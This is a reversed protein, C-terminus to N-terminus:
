MTGYGYYKMLVRSKFIVGKASAGGGEEECGGGNVCAYHAALVSSTVLTFDGAGSRTEGGGEGKKKASTLLEPLRKYGYPASCRHHPRPNPSRVPRPAFLAIQIRELGETTHRLPYHPNVPSQSKVRQSRGSSLFSRQLLYSGRWTCTGGDVQRPQSEPPALPSPPHPQSSCAKVSKM